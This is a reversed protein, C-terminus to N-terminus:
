RLPVARSHGASWRVTAMKLPTLPRSWTCMLFIPTLVCGSPFLVLFQLMCAIYHIVHVMVENMIKMAMYRMHQLTREERALGGALGFCVTALRFLM